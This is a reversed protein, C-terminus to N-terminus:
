KGTPWPEGLLESMHQPVERTRMLEPLPGITSMIFTVSNRRRLSGHTSAVDIANAMFDAGSFKDDALSVIVDPPNQVMAFHARWLRQLPAPYYHGATAELLEDADHYGDDSQMTALLENLKLPDGSIPEYRYSNGRRHVLARRGDPALVVVHEGEAYSALTVGECEIVDGALEAPRHTAFGAYTELGFRIYAVDKGDGLRDTIRWGREQLFSELGIPTSATYNHGHDALLTVKVLGRTECLLEWVLQEVTELCERHGQEALRTGMGASSSSYAIIERTEGADFTEKLDNMEKGFVDRPKLYGVADWLLHARYQLMRNYGKTGGTLYEMSGGVMKGSRRDYYRAEVGEAAPANLLSVMSLDTMVPYPAIVRSPPHFMRLGGSDYYDKLLDYSVGDLVIVLHRCQSLPMADLDIRVDPTTDANTDYGIYRIRGQDDAFAFFDAKDDDTSDFAAVAGAERAEPDPALEALGVPRRCGFTGLVLLAATLKLLLRM